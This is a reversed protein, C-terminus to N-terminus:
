IFPRQSITIVSLFCRILPEIIEACSDMRIELLETATSFGLVNHLDLDRDEVCADEEVFSKAGFSVAFLKGFAPRPTILRILRSIDISRREFIIGVPVPGLASSNEHVNRWFGTQIHSLYKFAWLRISLASGNRSVFDRLLTDGIHTQLL